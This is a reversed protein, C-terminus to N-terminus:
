SHLVAFIIQNPHSVVIPYGFEYFFLSGVGSPSVTTESPFHNHVIMDARFSLKLSVFSKLSVERDSVSPIVCSLIVPLNLSDM